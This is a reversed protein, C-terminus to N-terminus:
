IHILSLKNESALERVVTIGSMISNSSTKVKEVTSVVRDLDAKISGNLAGDSENLHRISMVYCIYCLLLCAVQLQYNKMDADSRCGLVVYRYVDSVIVSLVNAIGCNIMFKKNKYLVLLSM